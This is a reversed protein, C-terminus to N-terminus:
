EAANIKEGSPAKAVKVMAARVLKEKYSYGPLLVDCVHNEPIDSREETAIAEHMTPDFLQNRPDLKVLGEAELARNLQTLIMQVGERVSNVDSATEASSLAREMNDVVPLLKHLVNETASERVQDKERQSRKRFNDFEARQRLLMERFQMVEQDLQRSEGTGDGTGMAKSGPKGAKMLNRGFYLKRRLAYRNGLAPPKVRMTM